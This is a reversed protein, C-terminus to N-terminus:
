EHCPVLGSPREGEKEKFGPASLKGVVDINITSNISGQKDTYAMCTYRGADSRQVDLFTLTGDINTIHEAINISRDKFWRIKVQGDGEAKCPVSANKHLEVYSDKPRPSFKLKESFLKTIDFFM